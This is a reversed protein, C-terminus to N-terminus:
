TGSCPMTSFMGVQREAIPLAQAEAGDFLV